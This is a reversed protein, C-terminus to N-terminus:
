RGKPIRYQMIQNKGFIGGIKNKFTEDTKGGNSKGQVVEREGTGIERDRADRGKRRKKTERQHANILNQRRNNEKKCQDSLCTVQVPHRTIIKINCIRCKFKRESNKHRRHGYKDKRKNTCKKAGCLYQNARATHFVVECYPCTLERQKKKVKTQYGLAQARKVMKFDKEYVKKFIEQGNIIEKLNGHKDFVKIDYIM